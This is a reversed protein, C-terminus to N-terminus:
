VWSPAAVLTVALSDVRDAVIPSQSWREHLRALLTTLAGQDLGPRLELRVVLEAGLMRSTPDGNQLSVAAVAPEAAVSASFVALVEADDAPARWPIGQAMAWVAPRRVVFETPSTADIIVIDTNEGAAALAVRRAETPIPRAKPNWATMAATSTFAPLASRGDPTTVTVISLEQTKDVLHGHDDVGTEGAHAVLPVLLRVERLADVVDAQSAEGAGFRRMTDLLQPSATGDDGEFASTSAEFHRGAFPRGASDAAGAHPEPHEDHM